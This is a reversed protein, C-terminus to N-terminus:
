HGGTPERRQEPALEEGREVVIKDAVHQRHENEEAEAALVRAELDQERGDDENQGRDGKGCEPALDGIRM